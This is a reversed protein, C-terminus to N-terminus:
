AAPEAVLWHFHREVPYIRYFTGKMPQSAASAHSAALHQIAALPQSAALHPLNREPLPDPVLFRGMAGPPSRPGHHNDKGTPTWGRETGIDARCKNEGTSGSIGM